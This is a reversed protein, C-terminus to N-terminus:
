KTFSIFTTDGTLTLTYVAKPGLSFYHDEGDVRYTISWYEGETEDFTVSVVNTFSKGNLNNDVSTYNTGNAYLFKVTGMRGSEYTNWNAAFNVAFNVAYKREVFCASRLQDITFNNTNIFIRFSLNYGSLAEREKISMSVKEQKVLGTNTYTPDTGSVTDAEVVMGNVRVEGIKASLGTGNKLYTGDKWIIDDNWILAENLLVSRPASMVGSGNANIVVNKPREAPINDVWILKDPQNIRFPVLQDGNKCKMATNENDYFSFPQQNNGMPNRIAKSSDTNFPGAINLYTNKLYCKNTEFYSWFKEPTAPENGVGFMQTLDFLQPKVLMNTMTKGNSVKIQFYVKDYDKLATIIDGSLMPFGTNFVAPDSAYLIPYAGSGSVINSYVCFYKHNAIVSIGSQLNYNTTATATGNLTITGDGNNTYTVGDFVGTAPYKSKDLM